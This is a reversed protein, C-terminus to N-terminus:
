AEVKTKRTTIVQMLDALAVKPAVAVAEKPPHRHSTIMKMTTKLESDELDASDM